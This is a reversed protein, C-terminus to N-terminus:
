CCGEVTGEWYGLELLDEDNSCTKSKSPTIELIPDTNLNNEIGKVVTAMTDLKYSTVSFYSIFMTMLLSLILLLYIVVVITEKKRPGLLALYRGKEDKLICLNPDDTLNESM